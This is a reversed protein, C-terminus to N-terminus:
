TRSGGRTSGALMPYGLLRFDDQFLRGIIARTQDCYYEGKKQDASTKHPDHRVLSFGEPVGLKERVIRFDKDFHEVRMVHDFQEFPLVLLRTQPVWHVSDNLGGEELYVCFELFSPTRGDHRRSLREPVAIDRVVKDLYASLTRTYPNRVLTFKFYGALAEVEQASLSSPRRFTQGKARNIAIDQGSQVRALNAVVSSHGAKGIGNFLIRLSPSVFVRRDVQFISVPNTWTYRRYFPTALLARRRRWASFRNFIEHFSHEAAPHNGM